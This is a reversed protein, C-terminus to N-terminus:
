SNRMEDRYRLLFQSIKNFNSFLKLASVFQANMSRLRYVRIVGYLATGLSCIIILITLWWELNIEKKFFAVLVSVFLSAAVGLIWTIILKERELYWEFMKQIKSEADPIEGVVLDIIEKITLYKV